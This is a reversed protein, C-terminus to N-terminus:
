NGEGKKFNENSTELVGSTVANQRKRNIENQLIEAISDANDYANRMALLTAAQVGIAAELCAYYIESSIIKDIASGYFTKKDPLVLVDSCNGKEKETTFPLLETKGPIQTFTNVYKQYVLSVSKVKGGFYLSKVTETLVGCDNEFPVDPLVIDKYVPIKKDSFYSYTNKGVVILLPDNCLVNNNEIYSRLESNYSGCLGKNSGIVIVCEPLGDKNENDTISLLSKIYACIESYKRYSNVMSTLRSYKVSSVTKMANALQKSIKVSKLRSKLQQLSAM